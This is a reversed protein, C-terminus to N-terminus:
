FDLEVQAGAGTPSVTPALRLGSDDAREGRFTFYGFVGTTVAGIVAFPIAVASVKAWRDGSRCASGIASATGPDVDVLVNTGAAACGDFGSDLATAWLDIHESRALAAAIDREAGDVQQQGYVIAALSIATVALSGGFMSRDFASGTRDDTTQSQEESRAVARQLLARDLMGVLRRAETRRPDDAPAERLFRRYTQRARAFRGHLRYAEALSFLEGAISPRDDARAPPPAAGIMMVVIVASAFIGTVPRVRM